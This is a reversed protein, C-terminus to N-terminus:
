KFSQKMEDKFDVVINQVFVDYSPIKSEFFAEIEEQSAKKDLLAEYEAVGDDGIKEMTELFIRKLLSEGMKSLLEERKEVPLEELGFAETLEQMLKDNNMNM